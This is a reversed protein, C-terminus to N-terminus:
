LLAPLQSKVSILPLLAYAALFETGVKRLYLRQEDLSARIHQLGLIEATVRTLVRGPGRSERM